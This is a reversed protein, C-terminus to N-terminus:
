RFKKRQFSLPLVCFRGRNKQEGGTRGDGTRRNEGQGGTGQEETRGWKFLLSFIIYDQM